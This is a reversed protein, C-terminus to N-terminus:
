PTRRSRPDRPLDAPADSAKACTRARPGQRAQETPRALALAALRSIFTLPDFEMATTGDRWPRRLRYRVRGEATLSLREVALPSRTIYRCLRERATSQGADLAVAGQLSFGDVEACLPGAVRPATAPCRRLRPVPQGADRGFPIRGQVAAAQCVSLADPADQDEPEAEDERGPLRGRRRLLAVVRNRMTRVLEAMDEETPPTLPWFRPEEGLRLGTFM